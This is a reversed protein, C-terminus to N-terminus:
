DRVTIHRMVVLGCVTMYVSALAVARSTGPQRRIVDAPVPTNHRQRTLGQKSGVLFGFNKLIERWM